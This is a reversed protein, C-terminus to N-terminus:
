YEDPLLITTASRDAETIIWIKTGDNLLYSSFIRGGNEVADLNTQQDEGCLEGQDLVVHRQLLEMPTQGNSELAELAGPTALVQALLFRPEKKNTAVM